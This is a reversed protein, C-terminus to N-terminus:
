SKFESLGVLVFFSGSGHASEREWHLPGVGCPWQAWALVANRVPVGAGCALETLLQRM